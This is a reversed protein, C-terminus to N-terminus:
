RSLKRKDIIEWTVGECLDRLGKNKWLDVCDRPGFSGLTLRNRINVIWWISDFSSPNHTKLPNKIRIRDIGTKASELYFWILSLEHENLAKEGRSNWQSLVRGIVERGVSTHKDFVYWPLNVLKPKTRGNVSKVWHDRGERLDQAVAEEDIGRLFLLIMATLAYYRDNLMGGGRARNFLVTLGGDEYESLQREDTGNLYAEYVSHVMKLYDGAHNSDAERRFFRLERFEAHTSRGNHTIYEWLGPADKSKTAICLRFAFRKWDAKSLNETQLLKFLEGILQWSEEITISWLRWKLWDCHQDNKEWLAEFCTNVLDLDGRRVGKQIGSRCGYIFDSDHM